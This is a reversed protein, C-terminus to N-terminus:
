HTHRNFKRALDNNLEFLRDLNSYIEDQVARDIGTTSTSGRLSILEANLKQAKFELDAIRSELREVAALASRANVDAVQVSDSKEIIEECGTLAILLLASLLMLKAM